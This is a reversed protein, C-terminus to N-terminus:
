RPPSLGRGVRERIALFLRLRIESPLGALMCPVVGIAGWTGLLALLQAIGVPRWASSLLVGVVGSWAFGGTIAALCIAAFSRLEFGAEVLTPSRLLMIAGAIEGGLFGAAVGTAGFPRVLAIALVTGAIMQLAFARAPARGRGSLSLAANLAAIPAGIMVGAGIVLALPLRFHETRGTWVELCIEGLVVMGAVAAASFACLLIGLGTISRADGTTLQSRMRGAVEVAAAISAMQGFQRVLNGMTRLLVFSVIENAGRGGFGLILVPAHLLVIPSIQILALWRAEDLLARLEATTPRALSLGFSPMRRRLDCVTLPWAVCLDIALMTGALAVPGAGFPVIVLSLVALLAPGTLDILVGRAFEGRARYLQSISGRSLRSINALGLLLLVLFAESAGLDALVDAVLRPQLLFLSVVISVALAATSAAIAIAISGLRKFQPIDNEVLAKHFVNGWYINLGLELLTVLGALSVITAWDGYAGTGWSRLLLGVVVIRDVTSLVLALLQAAFNQGAKHMM